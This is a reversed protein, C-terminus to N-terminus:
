IENRLNDKNGVVTKYFINNKESLKQKALFYLKKQILKRARLLQTKSTSQSIGLKEAIEKHKYKELVYMSFVVRFGYPLDAVVELIEDQTFEHNKIVSEMNSEEILIEENKKSLSREDIEEFFIKNHSKLQTLCINVAIRKLWGEFAGKGSYQDIREFVIIFTEQVIDDAASWSKLYRYALVKIIGAYNDFLEKFASKDAKKLKKILHRSVKM